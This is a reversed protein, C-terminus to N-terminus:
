APSPSPLRVTFAAGAGAQSLVEITGGHSAVISKCIALGLGVRGEVSTRATDVRYFREFIHPLHEAAIGPGNDSVTLVAVGKELRTNVQVEGGAHNHHIANTLLNNIVLGIRDEDGLCSVPNLAGFMRIGREQSLPKVLEMCDQVSAALDFPSESPSELGADLRAIALLSEILRRMRQAARQCSQLAQRYEEPSRERNLTTQTQTLIVAVPTRLEHAADSTFQRQQSFVSELRAFTSNLVMAMQGLESETDAADIRRSLDGASIKLATASIEQIPRIARTAIWSGGALGLLLIGGGVASLMLAVRHLLDLEVAISRGVLVVIEGDVRGSPSPFFLMERWAGRSVPPNPPRSLAGSFVLGAPINKSSLVVKGDRSLAFYFGNTDAEEFLGALQRPLLFPRGAFEPLRTALGHGPAPDDSPRDDRHWPGRPEEGPPEGERGRNPPPRLMNALANARHQLGEDIPRLVRGRELQFATFGFGALLVTLILAYWLQLRWKISKFIM